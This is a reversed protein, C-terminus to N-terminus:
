KNLEELIKKIDKSNFGHAKLGQGLTEFQAMACGVCHMGADMLIDAANPNIELAEVINTSKTIKKNSKM